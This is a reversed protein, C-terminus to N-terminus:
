SMSLEPEQKPAPERSPYPSVTALMKLHETLSSSSKESLVCLERSDM